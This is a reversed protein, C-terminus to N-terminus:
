VGCYVADIDVETNEIVVSEASIGYSGTLTLKNDSGSINLTGECSFASKDGGNVISDANVIVNSGDVLVFGENVTAGNLTLNMEAANWTWNEGSKDGGETLDIAFANLGVTMTLILAMIIALVKKFRKAM